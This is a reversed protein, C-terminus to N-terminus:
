IQTFDSLDRARSVFDLGLEHCFKQPQEGCISHSGDVIIVNQLNLVAARFGAGAM